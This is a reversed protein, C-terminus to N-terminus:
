FRRVPGSGILSLFFVVLAALAAWGAPLFLNLVVFTILALLLGWILNTGTM